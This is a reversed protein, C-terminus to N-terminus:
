TGFILKVDAIQLEKSNRHKALLCSEELIASSLERAYDLFLARADSSIRQRKYRGGSVQEPLLSKTSLEELVKQVRIADSVIKKKPAEKPKKEIVPQQVDVIISSSAVEMESSSSPAVEM